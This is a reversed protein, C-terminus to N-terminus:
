NDVEIERRQEMIIVLKNYVLQIVIGAQKLFPFIGYLVSAKFKLISKKTNNYWPVESWFWTM